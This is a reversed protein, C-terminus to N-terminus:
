IEGCYDFYSCDICKDDWVPIDLSDVRVNNVGACEQCIIKHCIECLALPKSEDCYDCHSM